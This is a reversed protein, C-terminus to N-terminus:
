KAAGPNSGAPSAQGSSNMGQQPNNQAALALDLQSGQWLKVDDKKTSVFVGSNQSAVSSHMDVNKLAGMQDVKLEQHNWTNTDGDAETIPSSEQPIPSGSQTLGVPPYLQMITAHIPVTTGDKLKAETFRVALKSAGQEQMDDATVKGVLLTGKPLEPGNKLHVTKELRAEFQSGQQDKKADLARTLAVTARVMENAERKGTHPAASNETGNNQAFGSGPLALALSVAAISIANVLERKM